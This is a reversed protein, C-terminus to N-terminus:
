IFVGNSPLPVPLKRIGLKLLKIDREPLMNTNYSGANLFLQPSAAVGNVSKIPEQVSSSHSLFAPLAEALVVAMRGARSGERPRFM